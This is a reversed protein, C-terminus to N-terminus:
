RFLLTRTWANCLLKTGIYAPENFYVVKSYNEEPIYHSDKFTIFRDTVLKGDNEDYFHLKDDVKRLQGKVM